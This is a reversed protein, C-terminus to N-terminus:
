KESHTLFSPLLEGGNRYLNSYASLCASLSFHEIIRERGLQGMKKRNPSTAISLMAEGLAEPYHPPVVFGTVGHEVAEANGGVATVVMPLSAAMSELVANSFGEEHSCLVGIDSVSLLDPIDHRSGLWLFRDGLGLQEAAERLMTGIGDDRGACICTWPQPLQKAIKAFAELLDHHGKYPILNAIIIFVLADDSVGLDARLSKQSGKEFRELSVGNYILRLQKPLVGESRLDEIVALANGCILDMRSHLWHEISALLRHKSQYHNLSRRSMIRLARPGPLLAIGGVIYAGPLFFHIANPKFRWAHLLLMLAACVMRAYIIVRPHRMLKHAWNPMRFGRVPVGGQVFAQTLPGEPNLAFVEPEFGQSRLGVTIRLLHQEAGGLDTSGIVYLLKM